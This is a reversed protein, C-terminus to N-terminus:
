KFSKKERNIYTELTSLKYIHKGEDDKFQERVKRAVGLQSLHPYRLIYERIVKNLKKESVKHEKGGKRLTGGKQQRKPLKIIQFLKCFAKPLCSDDETSIILFGPTKEARLRHLEGGFKELAVSDSGTIGNYFDQLFVTCCFELYKIIGDDLGKTEEMKLKYLEHMDMGSVNKHFFYNRVTGDVLTRENSNPEKKTDWRYCHREVIDYTQTNEYKTTYVCGKAFYAYIAAFSADIADGIILTFSNTSEDIQRKTKNDLYEAAEIMIHERGRLIGLLKYTKKLLEDAKEKKDM